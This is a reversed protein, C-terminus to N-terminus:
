NNFKHLPIKIVKNSNKNDNSYLPVEILESPDTLKEWIDTNDKGNTTNIEQGLLLSPFKEANTDNNM